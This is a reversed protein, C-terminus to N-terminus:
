FDDKTQMKSEIGNRVKNAYIDMWTFVPQYTKKYKEEQAVNYLIEAKWKSDYTIDYIRIRYRDDKCAVEILCSGTHDGKELGKPVFINFTGAGIISGQEKDESIIKANSALWNKSFSFIQEKTLGQATDVFEYVAKSDVMKFNQSFAVAPLLFCLLFLHKM